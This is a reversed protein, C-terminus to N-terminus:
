HINWSRPKCYITIRAVKFTWCLLLSLEKDTGTVRTFSIVGVIAIQLISYVTFGQLNNQEHIHQDEQNKLYQVGYVRM